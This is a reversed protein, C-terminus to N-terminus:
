RYIEVYFCVSRASMLCNVIIQMFSIFSKSIGEKRVSPSQKKYKEPYAMRDLRKDNQIKLMKKSIQQQHKLNKNRAITVQVERELRSKWFKKIISTIKKITNKPVGTSSTQISVNIEGKLLIIQTKLRFSKPLKKLKIKSSNKEKNLAIKPSWYEIELTLDDDINETVEIVDKANKFIFSYQGFLKAPLELIIMKMDLVMKSKLDDDIFVESRMIRQVIQLLAGSEASTEGPECLGKANVTFEESDNDWKNYLSEDYLSFQQGELQKRKKSTLKSSLGYGGISVSSASFSVLISIIVLTLSIISILM